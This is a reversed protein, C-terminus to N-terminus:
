SAPPGQGTAPSEGGAPTEDSLSGEGAANEMETYLENLKRKREADVEAEYHHALRSILTFGYACVLAVVGARLLATTLDLSGTTVLQYLPWGTVALALLVGARAYSL